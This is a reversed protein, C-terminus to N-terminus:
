LLVIKWLKTQHQEVQATHINTSGHWSSFTEAWAIYWSVSWLISKEKLLLWLLRHRCWRLRSETYWQGTSHSPVSASCLSRASSSTSSSSPRASCCLTFGGAAALAPESRWTSPFARWAPASGRTRWTRSSDTPWPNLSTQAAPAGCCRAMEQSPPPLLEDSYDTQRKIELGKHQWKNNMNNTQNSTEKKGSFAKCFLREVFWM